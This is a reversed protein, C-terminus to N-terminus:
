IQRLIRLDNEYLWRIDTVGYRLMAVRDIGMGFAFGSYKEPDYGCNELVVPHIMGCGLIELWKTEKGDGKDWAIDVEGGPEVFPFYSPRFRVRTHDGFMRRAFHTLTGKLHAFTIGEDVLFGELQFFMPSHTVDDDRRYVAGPSVIALPPKRRTMERIQVSSTHTRLLMKDPAKPDANVYFSDQMDTAPHDPPFGLMDFNFRHWEVEPGEAIEFGLQSFVELLEDRARTIPHLRGPLAGRAPLSIDIPPGKLEAERSQAQLRTLAKQFAEELDQKLSNVAQGFNKREEPQLEKLQQMLSRVEGKAGLFNAYSNRLQVENAGQDFVSLAREKISSLLGNLESM